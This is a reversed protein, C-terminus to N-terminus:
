LSACGIRAGQLFQRPVAPVDLFRHPVEKGQVHRHAERALERPQEPLISGTAADISDSRSGLDTIRNPRDLHASISARCVFCNSRFPSPDGGLRSVLELTLLTM